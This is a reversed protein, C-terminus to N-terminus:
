VLDMLHEKLFKWAAGQMAKSFVHGVDHEQVYLRDDFGAKVFAQRIQTYAARAGEDQFFQDKGGGLVMMAGPMAMSALDPLDLYRTMGPILVSFGMTFKIDNQLQYPMSAMWCANVTAKIRDDLAALMMARMGGTSFGVCGIRNRDVEDRTYLYDLTRVDDWANIGPWTAGAALLTRDLLHENNSSRINFANVQEPPLDSAREWWDESDGDLMMRRNGWYLADIVVVLYGQRALDSAISRGEYYRDRYETIVTNEGPLSVLKEKGWLYFGGHDHFCIVAPTGRKQATKPVLVFAPVTTEQTSHFVVEEVVFDGQDTEGIVTAQSPWPSPRYHLMEMLGARVGQKWATLDKFVDQTFAYPFFPKRGIKSVTAWMSGIDSQYTPRNSAVPVAVTFPTSATQTQGHFALSSGSALAGLQALFHRRDSCHLIAKQSPNRSKM